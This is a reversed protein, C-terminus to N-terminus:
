SAITHRLSRSLRKASGSGKFIQNELFQIVERAIEEGADEQLFHGANQLQQFQSIPLHDALAMGEHLPFVPDKDSWLVLIPVEWRSLVQAIEHILRATEDSARTPIMKVFAAIGARSAATPHPMKYQRIIDSGPARAFGGTFALWRYLDLRRILFSALAGSRFLARFWFPLKRESLFTNLIVLGRVNDKHDIAYRFSIPGGWDHGVITVGKLNLETILKTLIDVHGRFSYASEHIPKDSLGFGLLDPAVCRFGGAALLPIMKRYLFSWTPNGHVLLVVPGDGEDFYHIKRGSFEVYNSKFPFGYSEFSAPAMDGYTTRLFRELGTPKPVLTAAQSLM